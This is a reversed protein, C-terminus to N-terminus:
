AHAVPQEVASIAFPKLELIRPVADTPRWAENADIRLDVRRGVRRRISRLRRVDDQGAIGVKVKVQRFGYVWMKWAALRAKWGKASASRATGSCAACWSM